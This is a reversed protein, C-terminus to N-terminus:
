WLGMEKLMVANVKHVDYKEEALQRGRQGMRAALTPDTIFRAMAEALADVSHVPVLFGNDGDVVTERCGPADTTIVARGMAMAELVTRPTGERYSPLVYVSCAEIAPRVDALRGLFEISGDAVWGDLEAQSIANPNSDIWGVLACQVQPHSRKLLRAAQAYERVGKDGLLRGIFLFRVAGALAAAPLPRVAFSAVDVGSGNVVCVPTHPQLIGREQFLALDDPNQFFV